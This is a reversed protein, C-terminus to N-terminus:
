FLAFYLLLYPGCGRLTSPQQENLVRTSNFLRKEVQKM